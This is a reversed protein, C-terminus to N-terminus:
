KVGIINKYEKLGTKLNYEPKWDPLWKTKDSKTNFQYGAPIKSEEYYNYGISLYTLVEEFTNSKGTAVDYIGSEIGSLCHINASVVDKIYVFDRKAQKIITSGDEQELVRKPFLKFKEKLALPSLVKKDQGNLMAQYAVSAMKGKHSEGEGYVNFYRLAVFNTCKAVGYCETLYKSWGYLNTPMGFTETGYCAASSSFVIPIKSIEALDFLVKSFECNYKMMFNVDKEMTDTIAGVHFIMDVKDLAKFLSTEWGTYDMYSQEITTVSAVGNDLLATQLNKGIFGESGTLLIRM